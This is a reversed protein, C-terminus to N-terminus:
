AAHLQLPDPSGEGAAAFIANLDPLVTVGGPRRVLCRIFERRWSLGVAPPDESDTRDFTAVEHVKDTRIGILAPEGDLPVEIVIIRSDASAEAAPMGFALGLDAIPIVKGRFNTVSGVLRRAGPVSTEPLLDLIERVLMAEIAFSEERLSFTLVELQGHDDWTINSIDTM